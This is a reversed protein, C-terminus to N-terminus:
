KHVKESLVEVPKAAAARALALEARTQQVDSGVPDGQRLIRSLYTKDGYRKFLLKSERAAGPLMVDNTMLRAVHHRDASGIEVVGSEVNQIWYEGAPMEQNGATFAFPIQCKAYKTEDQAVALTAIGAVLLAALLLVAREKRLVAEGIGRPDRADGDRDAPARLGANAGRSRM